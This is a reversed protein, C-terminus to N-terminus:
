STPWMALYPHLWCFSDSSTILWTELDQLPNKKIPHIDAVKDPISM